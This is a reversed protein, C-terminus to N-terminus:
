HKHKAAAKGLEAKLIFTGKAVYRDGPVLGSLIETHSGNSRGVVVPRKEFAGEEEVFVVVQNEVTQLATNPVLVSVEDESTVVGATVFLGPRWRNDPNPLVVRAFGTRTSENVVPSVYSVTARHEGDIGQATLLVTRGIVVSPLDQAYVTIDAWVTSLDAIVFVSTEPSVVEGLTVHKEVITGAFPAKIEYMPFDTDKEQTHLLAVQDETLGLAHLKAEATRHEIDAEAVQQKARLFEEEPAIKKAMLTEMRSFNAKALELRSSAALDGAKADALERSDLVVIVEDPTVADGLHKRVERVVGGVRPVIHAARDANLQIEAPLKITRQLKGGDAEAVEVGYTRMAEPTLTLRGEDHDAHEGAHEADSHGDGEPEDCHAAIGHEERAQLWFYTGASGGGVGLLLTLACTVTARLNM